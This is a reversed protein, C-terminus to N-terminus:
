KKRFGVFFVKALVFVVAGIVAGGYVPLPESSIFNGIFGGFLAGMLAYRVLCMWDIHGSHNIGNGVGSSGAQRKITTAM